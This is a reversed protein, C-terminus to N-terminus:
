SFGPNEYLIEKLETLVQILGEELEGLTKFQAAKESM